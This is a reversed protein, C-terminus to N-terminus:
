HNLCFTDPLLDGLTTERLGDAGVLYVTFAADCFESMVQRCTGCPTIPEAALVGQTGGCLAMARFARKGDSVAAFFASREACNTAGYAANEVNCGTYISGDDCLLAAGVYFGSYPAYAKQMAAKALAALQEKM